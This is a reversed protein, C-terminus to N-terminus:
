TKNARTRTLHVALVEMFSEATDAVYETAPVGLDFSRGAASIERVLEHLLENLDESSFATLFFLLM